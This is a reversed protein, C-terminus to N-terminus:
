QVHKEIQSRHGTNDYKAFNFNIKNDSKPAKKQPGQCAMIALGSSIAADFKTRNNIDFGIWDRLTANFYMDGPDTPDRYEGSFDYGVYKDIYTEIASAHAQKVAESSNPIGGLEKETTSLKSKDKDPRNISFKRYGRNKFHYLLRPKNNEALMPMGYFVCAMLVDEFFKEATSPRAVYELFFHNVPAKEIHFKTLGSLAGKSGKGTTTGSIDYPDCGFAGLHSNEPYFLGNRKTYRNQLSKDPIWTVLFRGRIDPTWIVETDEIGNKWKFNGRTLINGKVFANNYDVQDYLKTLSFLSSESEDRFAHEEKRPFQRYFENLDDPDNKRQEVENEWWDIAGEYVLEGDLGEVPNGEEVRFIPHGYKDIYGETNHEMSIFLSYLGTKTQGSKGRTEIKSDYYNEMFEQGGESLKNCTSVMMCKGIVKPGLRLCTKTVRWNKKISSPKLWKGSEDHLLFKLKRSDYALNGTNKWNIVTNLGEDDVDEDFDYMNNRTIKQAPVRYALESKPRDMGAQIPKFYFPYGMSIPVVKDTFLAKADDGTKSLMGLESNKLLTGINVCESAGMYSAGSRRIKLYNIGFSRSDAKCAEWYIFFVRNAERFDPLGVDIESHTLYMWHSGTIYTPVGKNYFWYGYDRNDFEQNIFPLWKKKFESPMKNWRSISKIKKLVDPKAAPEWFQELAKESRKTISEPLKPLGIKLGEIEVVDGVTGDKSIVVFDYDRDWGYKWSKNKNRKAYESKPAPCDVVSM